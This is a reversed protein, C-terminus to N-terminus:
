NIGLKCLIKQILQDRAYVSAKIRSLCEPTIIFHEQVNMYTCELNLGCLCARGSGYKFIYIAAGCKVDDTESDYQVVDTGGPFKNCNFRLSDESAVLGIKSLQLEEDSLVVNAVSCQIKEQNDTRNSFELVNDLFLNCGRRIGFFSGGSQVFKQIVDRRKADDSNSTMDGLVIAVADSSWRGELLENDSLCVVNTKSIDVLAMLTELLQNGSWHQSDGRYVYVTKAPNPRLSFDQSSGKLLRGETDKLVVNWNYNIEKLLAAFSKRQENEAYVRVSDDVSIMQNKSFLSFIKTRDMSLYEELSNCIQSFLVERSTVRGSLECQISTAISHLLPHRRIDSNVNLGIGLIYIAKGKHSELQDNALGRDEVLFGAVKHGRICIDNPWKIQANKLGLDQLVKLVALSSAVEVDFRDVFGRLKEDRHLVFSVYLNGCQDADWKKSRSGRAKTQIEAIFATGPSVGLVAQEAADDMTTGTMEKYVINQGMLKTSLHQQVCDVNFFKNSVSSGLDAEAEPLDIRSEHKDDEFKPSIRMDETTDM